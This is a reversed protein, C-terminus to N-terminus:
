LQVLEEHEPHSAASTVTGPARLWNPRESPHPASKLKSNIAFGPSYGEFSRAVAMAIRHKESDDMERNKNIKFCFNSCIYNSFAKCFKKYSLDEARLERVLTDINQNRLPHGPPFVERLYPANKQDFRIIEQLIPSFDDGYEIRILDLIRRLVRRVFAAAGRNQGRPSERTMMYRNLESGDQRREWPETEWVGSFKIPFHTKGNESDRKRSKQNKTTLAAQKPTGAEPSESNASGHSPTKKANTYTIKPVCM